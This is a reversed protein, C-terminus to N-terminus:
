SKAFATIFWHPTAGVKKSICTVQGKAEPLSGGSFVVDILATGSGATVRTVTMTTYGGELIALPIEQNAANGEAIAKAVAMDTAGTVPTTTPNGDRTIMAVYWSEGYRRLLLSGNLVSGDRYDAKVRVQATDGATSVQSLEFTAFRDDVLDTIQEGSAVQEWYLVEQAENPPLAIRPTSSAEVSETEDQSGEDPSVQQQGPLKGFPWLGLLYATGGMAATVLLIALVTAIVGRRTKAVAAAAQTEDTIKM